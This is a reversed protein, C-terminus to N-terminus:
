CTVQGRQAGKARLLLATVIVGTVVVALCVCYTTPDPAHSRLLAAQSLAIARTGSRGQHPMSKELQRRRGAERARCLRM